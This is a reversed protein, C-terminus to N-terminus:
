TTALIHAHLCERREGAVEGAATREEGDVRNETADVFISTVDVADVGGTTHHFVIVGDSAGPERDGVPGELVAVLFVHGVVFRLACSCGTDLGGCLAVSAGTVTNIDGFDGSLTDIDRIVIEVFNIYLYDSGPEMQRQATTERASEMWRDTNEDVYDYGGLGFALAGGFIYLIGVDVGMTDLGVIIAIFYLFIRTGDAFLRSTPERTATGTRSIATALFDALIFGVVIIVLGAIFAPFYSVATDVFESLRAIALANAAALIALLYVYLAALRGFASSVAEETGGLIEGIPTGMAARDLEVADTVRRVLRDVVRGVVWGILLIIVAAVLRPLFV